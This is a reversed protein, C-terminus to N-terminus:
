QWTEVCMPHTMSWHKGGGKEGWFVKRSRDGTGQLWTFDENVEEYGARGEKVQSCRWVSSRYSNRSMKNEKLKESEKKEQGGIEWKKTYSLVKHDSNVMNDWVVESSVKVGKWCGDTMERTNCICPFFWRQRGCPYFM